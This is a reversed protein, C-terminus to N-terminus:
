FNFHIFTEYNLEYYYSTNIQCRGMLLTSKFRQRSETEFETLM